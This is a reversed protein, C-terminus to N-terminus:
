VIPQSFVQIQIRHDIEISSGSQALSSWHVIALSHRSHNGFGIQDEGRPFSIQENANRPGKGIETKHSIESVQRHSFRMLPSPNALLQYTSGLGRSPRVRQQDQEGSRGGLLIVRVDAKRMMRLRPRKFRSLHHNVSILAESANLPQKGREPESAWRTTPRM